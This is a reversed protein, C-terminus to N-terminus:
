TVCFLFPSALSFLLPFFFEKLYSAHHVHLVLCSFTNPVIILTHSSTLSLICIEHFRKHSGGLGIFRRSFNRQFINHIFNIKFRHIVYFKPSVNVLNSPIITWSNLWVCVICWFLEQIKSYPTQHVIVRNISTWSIQGFYQFLHLYHCRCRLQIKVHGLWKPYLM